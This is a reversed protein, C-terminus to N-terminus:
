LFYDFIFEMLPIEDTPVSVAYFDEDDRIEDKIPWGMRAVIVPIYEPNCFYDKKLYFTKM